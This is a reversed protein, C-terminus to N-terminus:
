SIKFPKWQEGIATRAAGVGLPMEFLENLTSDLEVVNKLSIVKANEESHNDQGCLFQWDGDNDHSVYLVSKNEEIVHTCTLVATDGNEKFKFANKKNGFLKLINM